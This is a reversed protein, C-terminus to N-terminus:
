LGEISKKVITPNLNAASLWAFSHKGSTARMLEVKEELSKHLTFKRKAEHSKIWSATKGAQVVPSLSVVTAIETKVHPPAAGPRTPSPISIPAKYM